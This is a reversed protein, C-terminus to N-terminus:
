GAAKTSLGLRSMDGLMGAPLLAIQIPEGVLANVAVPSGHDALSRFLM